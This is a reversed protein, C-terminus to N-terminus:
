TVTLGVNAAACSAAQNFNIVINSTGVPTPATGLTFSTIYFTQGIGLGILSASAQAQTVYVDEGITLSNVFAVLANILATGTTSVYGPLAKITIAFYIPVSALIYYNITSPLGFQDHVVGSTTGYTQAGPAKKNSIAATIDAVTGGEIVASLSHAPIGNADTTGTDNEYITWRTIGTVNGIAAYIAEKIGLAPLSTSAGQRIRLTADDEVPSGPVANSTNSFSQWGLQPTAVINISSAPAVTNGAVQATVTVSISGGIPITVSAPLNWLNGNVDKVVGNTIITGAVGIVNGVATSNTAINRLLGNIKVLSSLGAGQAYTPAFAQFVAVASQNSDNIAKALIALWQGDQSDPAIYIGSGYIAQFSAILSQYIDNYSPISIGTSNITPALIALPYTPM